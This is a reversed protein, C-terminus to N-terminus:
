ENKYTCTIRTGGAVNQGIYLSSNIIRARYKMINLGMGTRRDLLNEIGIGDDCVSVTIAGDIDTIEIDINKAKSHKVANNIAEQTILFLHIANLNSKIKVSNTHAFNCKIGYVKEVHETLDEVAFLLGDADIDV